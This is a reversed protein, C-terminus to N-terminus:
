SPLSSYKIRPQSARQSGRVPLIRDFNDPHAIDNGHGAGADGRRIWRFQIFYNWSYRFTQYYQFRRQDIDAGGIYLSLTAFPIGYTSMTGFSTASYMFSLPNYM